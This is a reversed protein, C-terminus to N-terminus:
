FNCEDYDKRKRKDILIHYANNLKVFQEHSRADNKNNDPHIKLSCFSYSSTKTTLSITKNSETTKDFAKM